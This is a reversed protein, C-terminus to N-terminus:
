FSKIQNIPFVRLNLEGVIDKIKIPGFYRSDLSNLRNDGCAFIEDQGVTVDVEGPTGLEPRAYPQDKDPNFGNPNDNNYVTIQNDKVVVREGPLGIVRKVLQRKEGYGEDLDFIIIEHRKPVHQKKTLKAWTEPWKNVILLDQNQLTEQMSPGDVEYSRIVYRTLGLAILPAAVFLLITSVIARKNHPKPQEPLNNEMMKKDSIDSPNDPTVTFLPDTYETGNSKSKDDM